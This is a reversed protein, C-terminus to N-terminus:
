PQSPEQSQEGGAPAPENAPISHSPLGDALIARYNSVVSHCLRLGKSLQASAELGADLPDEGSTV